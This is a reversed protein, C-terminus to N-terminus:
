YSTTPDTGYEEGCVFETSTTCDGTEEPEYYFDFYLFMTCILVIFAPVPWFDILYRM